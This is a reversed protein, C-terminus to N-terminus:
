RLAQGVGVPVHHDQGTVRRQDTGGGQRRQHAMMTVGTRRGGQEGGVEGIGRAVVPHHPALVIGHHGHDIAVVDRTEVGDVLHGGGDVTESVGHHGRGQAPQAGDTEGALVGEGADVGHEM